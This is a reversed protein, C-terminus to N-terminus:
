TPPANAEYRAAPSLPAHAPARPLVVLITPWERPSLTTAPQGCRAEARPPERGCGEERGAASAGARRGGSPREVLQGASEGPQRSRAAAAHFTGTNASNSAMSRSALGFTTTM